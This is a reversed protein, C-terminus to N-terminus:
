HIGHVKLALQLRDNVGLKEFVATLHSKVTRETIGLAQAIELNSDGEAAIRAVERERETLPAAWNRAHTSRRAGIGKLLRSMLSRGVWLEGSAVVELVQRLTAEAAYAHCYGTAGLDLWALGEEDEPQSSAIVIRHQQCSARWIKEPIAALDRTATDVVILSHPPLEDIAKGNGLRYVAWDSALGRFRAFLTEDDTLVSFAPRSM